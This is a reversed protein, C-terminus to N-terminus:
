HMDQKTEEIKETLEQVKVLLEDKMTKLVFLGTVGTNEKDNLVAEHLAITVNKYQGGYFTLLMAALKPNILMSHDIYKDFDKRINKIDELIEKNSM